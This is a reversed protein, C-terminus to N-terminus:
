RGCCRHRPRQTQQLPPQPPPPQAQPPLKQPNPEAIIKTRKLFFFIIHLGILSGFSLTALQGIAVLLPLSISEGEVLAILSIVFLVASLFICDPCSGLKDIARNRDTQNPKM